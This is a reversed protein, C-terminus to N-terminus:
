SGGFILLLLASEVLLSLGAVAIALRLEIVRRGFYLRRLRYPPVAAIGVICLAAAM